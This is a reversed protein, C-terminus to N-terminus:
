NDVAVLIPRAEAGTSEKFAGYRRRTKHDKWLGAVRDIELLRRQKIECQLVEKSLDFAAAPQHSVLSGFGRGDQQVVLASRPM